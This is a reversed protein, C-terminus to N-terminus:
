NFVAAGCHPCVADIDTDDIRGHFGCTCKLMPREPKAHAPETDHLDPKGHDCEGTLLIKVACLEDATHAGPNQEIGELLAAVRLWVTVLERLQGAPVPVVGGRDGTLVAAADAVKLLELITEPSLVPEQNDVSM